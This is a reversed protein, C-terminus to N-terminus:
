SGPTLLASTGARLLSAAAADLWWVVEGHAPRVASAPCRDGPAGGELALRAAEAKGDGAVLFYVLSAANLAPLTLSIRDGPADPPAAAVVWREEESLAKSGPFLSAVHGDAGMGLIVLDFRPPGSPFRERLTAEYARATDEPNPLESPMRFVSSDPIRLGDLLTERAMAFNSEPHDAAVAREDGWFFDVRDWPVDRAHHSALLSYTRRPTSGGALVLACRAREGAAERLAAAIGAAAARSLAELDPLVRIRPSVHPAM